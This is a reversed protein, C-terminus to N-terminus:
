AGESFRKLYAAKRVELEAKEQETIERRPKPESYPAAYGDPNHRGAQFKAAFAADYKPSKSDFRADYVASGSGAVVNRGEPAHKVGRDDLGYGAQTAPNISANHANGVGSPLNTNPNGGPNKAALAADFSPSKPDFRADYGPSNPAVNRPDGAPFKANPAPAVGSVKWFAPTKDPAHGTNGNQLSTYNKGNITVSENTSYAFTPNFDSPFM